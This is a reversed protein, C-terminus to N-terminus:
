HLARNLERLAAVRGFLRELTRDHSVFLVSAGYREAEAFLLELFAERRDQDLASTPEDAIILEPSGILARAAAVRQQQGVSLETVPKDLHQDIGLRRALEGAVEGAPKGGLRQLREQSIRVPLIINDRVNLYPILNFMQFIYGMHSGRFADRRAGRMGALERSLVKISGGATASAAAPLELIGALLGLLTTKGTGSPGHLFVREGREVRFAPIDLVLPGARYAFRLGEVEIAAAATAM